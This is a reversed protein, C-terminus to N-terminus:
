RMHRLEAHLARIEENNRFIEMELAQRERPIFTHRLRDDLRRNQAELERLRHQVIDYRSMPPPVPAPHVVHPAPAPHHAGPGPGPHVPGPGPHHAGPGNHHGNNCFQQCGKLDCRVNGRGDRCQPPVQASAVSAFCLSFVFSLGVFLGLKKM